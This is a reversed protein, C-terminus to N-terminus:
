PFSGADWDSVNNAAMTYLGVIVGEARLERVSLRGTVSVPRGLRATAPGNTLNVAIWHNVQPTGGFCCTDRDRLLLFEEVRGKRLSIPQMFGSVTVTRGDLERVAAPVKDLIPTDAHVFLGQENEIIEPLELEFGGLLDFDVAEAGGEGGRGPPNAPRRAVVALLAAAVM